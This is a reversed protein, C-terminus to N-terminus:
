IGERKERREKENGIRKEKKTTHTCVSSCVSGLFLEAIGGLVEGQIDQEQEQEQQQQQKQQQQQEYQGREEHWIAREGWAMNIEFLVFSGVLIVVWLVFHFSATTM